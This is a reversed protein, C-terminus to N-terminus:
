SSTEQTSPPMAPTQKGTVGIHGAGIDDRNRRRGDRIRRFGLRNCSFHPRAGAEDRQHLSAVTPDIITAFSRM